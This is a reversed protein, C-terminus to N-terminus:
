PQNSATPKRLLGERALVSLLAYYNDGLYGEYGFPAGDWSKWDKSRDLFDRGAFEDRDFAGLMPLLIEDAQKHRGLDYLAAMTFHAFAATAGGNEYHQFGESGDAKAESGDAKLAGGFRTKQGPRYDKPPVPVLNGPLGLDFRNFGVEKMKVLLRDMIPGAQAKPVLGYHIAIGSIYLFYYDHLTGDASRWGALIGTAPNFFTKVYAARLKEAAARWQAADEHKGISDAAAAMLGLARYALANSYADEHGFNIDDWWNAPCQEPARLSNWNGSNAYQILGNGDRDTALLADVWKKVGGYNREFWVTDGSGQVYDGVSILLSPYSDAFTPSTVTANGEDVGAYGPLGYAQAGSLYRDLTQRLIDLATLHEALPPTHLAVDAYEYVCVACVDSTSNNALMRRRPNLQLINLWNLQFGRLEPAKEQKGLSPYIATIECCYEISRQSETAAPFTVKVYNLEASKLPEGRHAEYGLSIPEKSTTTIRLSGQNPIHLVAPLRVTGDDNMLGLLTVHCKEPDFNLVLPAPKEAPSWQSVLQLNRETVYFRWGPSGKADADNRHYDYAIAGEPNNRAPPIGMRYSDKGAPPHLSNPGPRSEGLGDISFAMFGPEQSSVRLDFYPSVLHVGDHVITVAGFTVGAWSLWLAAAMCTLQWTNRGNTRDAPREIIM